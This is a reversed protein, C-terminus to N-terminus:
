IVVNNTSHGLSVSRGTHNSAMYCISWAFFALLAKWDVWHVVRGKRILRYPERTM